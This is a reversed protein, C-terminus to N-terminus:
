VGYSPGATSSSRASEQRMRRAKKLRARKQSKESQLENITERQAQIQQEVSRDGKRLREKLTDLEAREDEIASGLRRVESRLNQEKEKLEANSLESFPHKTSTAM